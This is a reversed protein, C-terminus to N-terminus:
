RGVSYGLGVANDLRTMKQLGVSYIQSLKMLFRQKGALLAAAPMM